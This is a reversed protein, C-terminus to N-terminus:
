GSDSVKGGEKCTRKNDLRTQFDTYRQMPRRAGDCKRTQHCAAGYNYGNDANHGAAHPIDCFKTTTM